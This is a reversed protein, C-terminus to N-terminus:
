NTHQYLYEAIAIVEKDTFGMFPPMQPKSQWEAFL